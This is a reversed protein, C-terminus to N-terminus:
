KSSGWAKAIVIFSNGAIFWCAANILPNSQEYIRTGILFIIIDYM